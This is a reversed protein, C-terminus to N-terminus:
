QIEKISLNINETFIRKFLYDNHSGDWRRNQKKNYNTFNSELTYQNKSLYECIKDYDQTLIEILIYTPQYKNLDIGKLVEYVFACTDIKLLDIDTKLYKGFQKQFREINKNLLYDM